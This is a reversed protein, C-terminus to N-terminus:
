EISGASTINANCEYCFVHYVKCIECTQKCHGHKFLFHNRSYCIAYKLELNIQQASFFSATVTLAESFRYALRQYAQMNEIRHTKNSCPMILAPLHAVNFFINKVPIHRRKLVDSLTCTWQAFFHPRNENSICCIVFYWFWDPGYVVFWVCLDCVMRTYWFGSVYVAFCVHFKDYALLKKLTRKNWTM